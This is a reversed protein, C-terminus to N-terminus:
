FHKLRSRCIIMFLSINRSRGFINYHSGVAMSWQKYNYNIIKTETRLEAIIKSILVYKILLVEVIHM